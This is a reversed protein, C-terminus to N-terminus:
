KIKGNLVLYTMLPDIIWAFLGGLFFLGSFCMMGTRAITYGASMNIFASWCCSFMFPLLLLWTVRYAWSNVLSFTWFSGLLPLKAQLALSLGRKLEKNTPDLRLAERMNALAEDPKQQFLRLEGLQRHADENNPELALAQLVSDEAERYRLKTRLLAARYILSDVHQPNLRLAEANQRMAEARNAHYLFRAYRNRVFADHPCLAIARRHHETAQRRNRWGPQTSLLDGLTSHIYGNEPALRLAEECPALAAAFQEQGWLAISLMHYGDAYAPDQQIARRAEQEALDYRRQQILARARESYAHASVPTTASM